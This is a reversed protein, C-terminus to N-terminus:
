NRLLILLNRLKIKLNLKSDNIIRQLSRFKFILKLKNHLM